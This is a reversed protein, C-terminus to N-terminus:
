LHNRHLRTDSIIWIHALVCQISTSYEITFSFALANNLSSPHGMHAKNKTKRVNWLIMYKEITGRLHKTDKNNRSYELKQRIKVNPFIKTM